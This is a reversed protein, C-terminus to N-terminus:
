ESIAGIMDDRVSRIDMETLVYEGRAWGNNELYHNLFTEDLPVSALTLDASKKFSSEYANHDKSPLYKGMMRGNAFILEDAYTFHTLFYPLCLYEGRKIYRKAGCSCYVQEPWLITFKKDLLTAEFYPPEIVKGDKVTACQNFRVSIEVDYYATMQEDEYIYVTPIVGIM